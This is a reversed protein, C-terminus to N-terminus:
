AFRRFADFTAKPKPAATAPKRLLLMGLIQRQHVTGYTRSDESWGRNDGMVFFRKKGVLYMVVKAQEHYTKAGPDLYPESLQAGNVYVDGHRFVVTDGPLGVVRKVAFDSHGPDRVVVLEERDPERYLRSFCNLLYAEGEHLTPLMSRGEVVVARVIFRNVFTYGVASLLVVSVLAGLSRKLFGGLGKGFSLKPSVTIAEATIAEHQEVDSMAKSM